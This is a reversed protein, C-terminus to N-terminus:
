GLFTLFSQKRRHTWSLCVCFNWIAQLLLILPLASHMLHPLLLQYLAKPGVAFM